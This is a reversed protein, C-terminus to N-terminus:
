LIELLETLSSIEYDAECSQGQKRGNRNLWITKLGARGAGVVDEELTDGVHVVESPTCQTQDLAIRFIAPDPKWVGHVEAVVVAQFVGPLGCRDPQTNANTVLCLQYKQKLAELVPLVDQFLEIDEFRHKFFVSNLHAALADDPRSISLLTQKFAKLRVASLPEKGKLVAAVRDRISIMKDINLLAAAESDIRGLELLVQNLSHRMVKDFDWLTGDADFFIARIGPLYM